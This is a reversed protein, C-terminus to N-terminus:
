SLENGELEGAPARTRRPDIQLVYLILVRWAAPDVNHGNTQSAEWCTPCYPWQQWTGATGTPRWEHTFPGDRCECLACIDLHPTRNQYLGVDPNAM